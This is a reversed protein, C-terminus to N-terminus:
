TAQDNRGLLRHMSPSRDILGALVFGIIHSVPVLWIGTSVVVRGIMESFPDGSKDPFVSLGGFFVLSAAVAALPGAAYGLRWNLKARVILLGIVLLAPVLQYFLAL